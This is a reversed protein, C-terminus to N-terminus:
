ENKASPIVIKNGIKVNELNNYEELEEKTINYKNLISNITDEEKVIYVYYTKFTEASDKFSSFLSNMNSDNDVLTNSNFNPVSVYNNTNKINNVNQEDNNYKYNLNTNIDTTEVDYNTVDEEEDKLEDTTIILEEKKSTELFLDDLIGDNRSEEKEEETIDFTELLPEEEILVPIEKEELNDICLAINLKLREEDLVEYTFDDIDLNVNSTDYKSDIEIDVPIKYSFDEDIQSAQTMKYTGELIFNGSILNDEEVRLTHELSISTIRSIMTKFEIEKVFPIIKKM